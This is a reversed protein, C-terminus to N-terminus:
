FSTKVKNIKAKDMLLKGKRDIWCNGPQTALNSYGKLSYHSVSDRSKLLHAMKLKISNESASNRQMEKSRSAISRQM